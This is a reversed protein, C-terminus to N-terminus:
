TLGYDVAYPFLLLERGTLVDEIEKFPGNKQRSGRHAFIPAPAAGQSIAKVRHGVDITRRRVGADSSVCHSQNASFVTDSVSGSECRTSYFEFVFSCISQRREGHMAKVRM